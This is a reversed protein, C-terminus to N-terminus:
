PRQQDDDAHAGMPGTLSRVGETVPQRATTQGALAVRNAIGRLGQMIAQSKAAMQYGQRLLRPDNSTLLEAVRRATTADVKGILHKAGVKIEDQLFKGAGVRLGAGAGAGQLTTMPDWGSGFGGIAGGALGAEILQRATTSNGMAQRAGDMITELSMRAQLMAMGGPGFVTSALKRENPSAFMAKTVDRTDRINGIVRDALDSAYGEKFLEREQPNMKAMVQRVDEAPMKKGALKRGADLANSEGFFDEAVGRAKQYAPVQSDLEGRLVKALQGATSSTDGSRKAQNAVSDLERKVQDWYQLNPYTPVGQAGKNFVIRGDPTVNVMPNFGGLGEAVDRDKGSSIARKMAGVFTDSSMMREMAPSMIPKDGAQYAAKYAPVRAQDYEAVLQDASKRANAQGAPLLNRVTDAVRDGQSLFRDQIMQELMARGEPSTNAASRLLAQTRAAGLDAMTVPEGAQKAAVWQQPTMGKAQGNAIMDSDIKLASAVRRAAEGDPNMWGRVTNVVPAGYKQAAAGIGTGIIHALGGGLIGSVIGTAGKMARDALGEGEGAGSAGGYFGGSFAADLAGAGVKAIKSAAPALMKAAGLEPQAAMAPIAGALESGAYLWPHNKKASAVARREADRAGEYQQIGEPDAGTAYGLGTRVGGAITRAPVPGIFEPIDTNTGPIKPAAARAGALEDGFGFTAGQTAGHLAADLKGADPESSGFVADDNMPAAGFVDEDSMAVKGGAARTAVPPVFTQGPGEPGVWFGARDRQDGVAYQSQDSFTPHNPKKFRDGMHGSVPDRQMDSAYAGRLDYDAGSDNPAHIMKWAQYAQEDALGLRTNYDDFVGGGDARRIPKTTVGHRLWKKFGEISLTEVHGIRDKGRGDSFARHYAERAQTKSGFGIFCKHEDFPKGATLHHQDVVFVYPSKLHPGLYVDVHDGDGGETKRIYGYHHPLKSKWRKGPPGGERMSGRPNEISIDLGHVRVHGKRYNGAEKQGETPSRNVRKVQENIHETLSV